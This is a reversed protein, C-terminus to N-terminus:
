AIARSLLCDGGHVRVSRDSFTPCLKIHSLQFLLIQPINDFM